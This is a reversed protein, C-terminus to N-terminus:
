ELVWQDESIDKPTTQRQELAESIDKLACHHNYKISIISREHKM